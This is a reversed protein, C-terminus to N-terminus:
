DTGSPERCRGLLDPSGLRVKVEYTGSPERYRGLNSSRWRSSRSEGFTVPCPTALNRLDIGVSSTERQAANSILPRRLASAYGRRFRCSLGLRRVRPIHLIFAIVPITRLPCIIAFWGTLQGSPQRTTM